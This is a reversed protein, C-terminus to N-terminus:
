LSWERRIVREYATAPRGILWKLVSTNGSLGFNAYYRFMKILADIAYGELGSQRAGQEWADISITDARIPKGLVASLIEAVEMQSLASTGALEYTADRHGDESLVTAAAEAVDELDVLSIRTEVPYPMKFSGETNITDRQGLINQIYAAPQLITFDLGSTFLYEEVRMKQWHHPMAEVQPHLVSHYIFHDVSAQVSEDIILRGMEFEDPHVNPPIHYVARVDSVAARIVERDRLDGSLVERAGAQRVSHEYEAKHVVARVPQEIKELQALTAM